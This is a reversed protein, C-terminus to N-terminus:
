NMRTFFSDTGELRILGICCHDSLREAAAWGGSSGEIAAPIQLASLDMRLPCAIAAHM